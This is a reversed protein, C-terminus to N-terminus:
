RRRVLGLREDRKDMEWDWRDRGVKRPEGYYLRHVAYPLAGVGAVALTIIALAPINQLVPNSRFPSFSM